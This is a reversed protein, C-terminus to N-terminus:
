VDLINQLDVFWSALLLYKLCVCAFSCNVFRREYQLAIVSTVFRGLDVSRYLLAIILFLVGSLLTIGTFKGPHLLIPYTPAFLLHARGDCGYDAHPFAELSAPETGRDGELLICLLLVQFFKM